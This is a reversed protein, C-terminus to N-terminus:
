KSASVRRCENQILELFRRVGSASQFWIDSDLNQWMDLLEADSASGRLVQDLYLGVSRRQEHNLFDNVTAAIWAEATDHAEDSGPYFGQALYEFAKPPSTLTM